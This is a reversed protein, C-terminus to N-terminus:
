VIVKSTFCDVCNSIRSSVKTTLPPEISIIFINSSIFKYSENNKGTILPFIKIVSAMPKDLLNNNSPDSDKINYKYFASSNEKLGKEFAFRAIINTVSDLGTTSNNSTYLTKPFYNFYKAM